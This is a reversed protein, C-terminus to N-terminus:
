VSETVLHIICQYEFRVNSPELGQTFMLEFGHVGLQHSRSMDFREDHIISSAM